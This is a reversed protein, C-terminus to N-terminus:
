INFKWLLHRVIAFYRNKLHWLSYGILWNWHGGARTERPNNLICRREATSWLSSSSFKSSALCLQVRPAMSYITGGSWLTSNFYNCILQGAVALWEVEVIEGGAEWQICERPSAWEENIWENVTGGSMRSKGVLVSMTTRSPLLSVSTQAARPEGVGTM